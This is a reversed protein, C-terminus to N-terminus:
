NSWHSVGQYLSITNGAKANNWEVTVTIDNAATTDITDLENAIVGSGNIEVHGHSAITGAAGVTRVTVEVEVSWNENTVNGIAPAYASILDTGVYLRITIDDAATANSIIGNAEIHIHNGVKMINAPLPCTYITTEVVTNTVTTTSTEVCSSRDIVQREAVNTIHFRDDHFEIVGTEPTTLATGAQFKIPYRGATSFGAPLLVNGTRSIETHNVANGLEIIENYGDIKAIYFSGGTDFIFPLAQQEAQIDGGFHVERDDFNATLWPRSNDKFRFQTDNAFTFLQSIGAQSEQADIFIVGSELVLKDATAGDTEIFLVNSPSAPLIRISGENNEGFFVTKTKFEEQNEIGTQTM